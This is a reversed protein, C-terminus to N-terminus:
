YKRISMIIYGDSLGKTNLSESLAIVERSLERGTYSGNEYNYEKIRLIDSKRYDRDDLALIWKQKGSLVREFDKQYVRIDHIM